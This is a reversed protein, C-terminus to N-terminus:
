ANNIAGVNVGRKALREKMEKSSVWSQNADNRAEIQRAEQLLALMTLWQETTTIDIDM